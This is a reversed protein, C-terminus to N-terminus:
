QPEDENKGVKELSEILRKIEVQENFLKEEEEKYISNLSESFRYLSDIESKGPLINRIAPSATERSYLGKNARQRAGIDRKDSKVPKYKSKRYHRMDADRKAPAEAGAEPAALVNTEEGPEAAEEAEGGLEDAGV